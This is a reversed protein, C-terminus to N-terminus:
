FTCYRQYSLSHNAYDQTTIEDYSSRKTKSIDSNDVAKDNGKRIMNLVVRKMELSLKKVFCQETTGWNFRFVSNVGRRKEDDTLLIPSWRPSVKKTCLDNRLNQRATEQGFKQGSGSRLYKFPRRISYPKASEFMKM